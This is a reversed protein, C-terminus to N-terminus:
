FGAFGDKDRINQSKNGHITKDRSQMLSIM